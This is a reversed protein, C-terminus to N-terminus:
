PFSASVDDTISNISHERGILNKMTLRIYLSLFQEYSNKGNFIILESSVKREQFHLYLIATDKYMRWTHLYVRYCRSIYIQIAFLLITVLLSISFRGCTVFRTASSISLQNTRSYSIYYKRATHIWAFTPTRQTTRNNSTSCPCTSASFCASCFHVDYLIYIHM